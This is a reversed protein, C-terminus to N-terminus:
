QPPTANSTCIAVAQDYARGSAKSNEVGAVVLVSVALLMAIVNVSNWNILHIGLIRAGDGSYNHVTERISMWVLLCFVSGNLIQMGMVSRSNRQVRSNVQSELLVQRAMLENVREELFRKYGARKEVETYIQILYGFVIALGYPAFVLVLWNKGEDHKVVGLTLAAAVVIGSFNIFRDATMLFERMARTLDATEALMVRLAQEDRSEVLKADLAFPKRRDPSGDELPQGITVRIGM